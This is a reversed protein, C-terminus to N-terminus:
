KENGLYKELVKAYFSTQLTIAEHYTIIKDIKEQDAFKAVDIMSEPNEQMNYNGKTIIKGTFVGNERELGLQTTGAHIGALTYLIDYASATTKYGGPLNIYEFNLNRKACGGANLALAGALALTTLIGTLKKAM